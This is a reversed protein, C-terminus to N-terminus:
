MANRAKVFPGVRDLVHLKSRSQLPTPRHAREAKRMVFISVHGRGPRLILPRHERVIECCLAATVPWISYHGSIVASLCMILESALWATNLVVAFLIRLCNRTESVCTLKRGWYASILPCSRATSIYGHDGRGKKRDYMCSLM